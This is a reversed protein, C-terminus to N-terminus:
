LHFIALNDIRTSLCNSEGTDKLPFNYVPKGTHFLIDAFKQFNRRNTYILNFFQM